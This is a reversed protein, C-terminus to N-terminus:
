AAGGVFLATQSGPRALRPRLVEVLATPNAAVIATGIESRRWRWTPHYREDYPQPDFPNDLAMGGARGAATCEVLHERLEDFTFLDRDKGSCRIGGHPCRMVRGDPVPLIGAVVDRLNHPQLAALMKAAPSQEVLGAQRLPFSSFPDAVIPYGGSREHAALLDADSLSEIFARVEGVAQEIHDLMLRERLRTIEAEAARRAAKKV